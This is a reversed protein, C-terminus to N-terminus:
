YCWRLALPLTRTYIALFRIFLWGRRPLPMDAIEDRLLPLCFAQLLNRNHGPMSDGVTRLLLVAYSRIFRLAKAMRTRLIRPQQLVHRADWLTSQKKHGGAGVQNNGHQRYLVTPELIAQIAGCSAAVLAVWWDEFSFDQPIPTALKLLVRNAVVSCGVVVNNFLLHDLRTERPIDISRYAFFSQSIEQLSDDVVKVDSHVLVPVGTGFRSEMQQITKISVELKRPMWVDDQGCFAFYPSQCHEMLLSFNDRGGLNGRKDSVIIMRDPNEQAWRALIAPTRDSSNDDRAIVVFNCHTQAFLSRMQEDLFKEGNYTALLIAIRDSSPVSQELEQRPIMSDRKGNVDM